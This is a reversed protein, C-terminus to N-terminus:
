FGVVDGLLWESEPVNGGSAAFGPTHCDNCGGLKVIYRGAAVSSAARVHEAPDEPIAAVKATSAQAAAKPEAITTAHWLAVVAVAGAALSVLAGSRARWGTPQLDAQATNTLDHNRVM